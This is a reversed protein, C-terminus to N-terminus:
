NFKISYLFLLFTEEETPATADSPFSCNRPNYM